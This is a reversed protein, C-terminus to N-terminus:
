NVRGSRRRSARASSLRSRMPQESSLPRSRRAARVAVPRLRSTVLDGREPGWVLGCVFSTRAVSCRPSPAFDTKDRSGERPVLRCDAASSTSGRRPRRARSRDAGQLVPRGRSRGDSENMFTEAEPARAMTTSGHRPLRGNFKSKFSAGGRSAVRRRGDGVNHRDREYQSGPQWPRRRASRADLCERRSPLSARSSGRTPARTPKPRSTTQLRKARTEDGEAGGSGRGRGRAEAEELEAFGRAGLRNVIVTEHPDDLLTVKDISPIDALRSM